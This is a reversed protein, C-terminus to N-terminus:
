HAAKGQGKAWEKARKIMRPDEGGHARSSGFMKGGLKTEPDMQQREEATTEHATQYIADSDTSGQENHSGTVKLTRENEPDLGALKTGDETQATKAPPKGNAPKETKDEKEVKPLEETEGGTDSGEGSPTVQVLSDEHVVDAVAKGKERATTTANSGPGSQDLGQWEHDGGQIDGAKGERVLRRQDSWYELKKVQEDAAETARILNDLRRKEDSGEAKGHKEHDDRHRSAAACREMLVSLLQRRSNQFVLLAMIKPMQFPKDARFM